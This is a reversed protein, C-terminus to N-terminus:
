ETQDKERERMWRWEEVGLRESARQSTAHVMLGLVV